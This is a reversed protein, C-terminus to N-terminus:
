IRIALLSLRPLEPVVGDVDASEGEASVDITAGMGNKSASSLACIGAVMKITSLSSILRRSSLAIKLVVGYLIRSAWRADSAVASSCDSFISKTIRSRMSGSILPGSSQRQIFARRDVCNIGTKIIVLRWPTSFSITPIEEPASSNRILGNCGATTRVRTRAINRLLDSMSESSSASVMRRAM